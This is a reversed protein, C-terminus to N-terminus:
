GTDGGILSIDVISVAVKSYSDVHVAFVSRRTGHHDCNSVPMWPTLRRSSTKLASLPLVSFNVSLHIGHAFGAGRVIIICRGLM